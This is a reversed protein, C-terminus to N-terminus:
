LINKFYKYQFKVRFREFEMEKEDDWNYDRFMEYM